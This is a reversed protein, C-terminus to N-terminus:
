VDCGFSSKLMRESFFFRILQLNAVTLFTKFCGGDGCHCRVGPLAAKCFCFSLFLQKLNSLELTLVFSFGM